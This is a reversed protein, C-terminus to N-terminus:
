VIEETSEFPLLCEEYFTLHISLFILLITVLCLVICNMPWLPSEHAQLTLFPHILQGIPHTLLGQRFILGTAWLAAVIIAGGMGSRFRLAAWLGISSFALFSVQGGLFIQTLPVVLTGNVIRWMALLLASWSLTAVLLLIILREVVLRWIPRPTVMLLERCPDDLLLGTAMWGVLLPLLIEGFVLLMFNVDDPSNHNPYTLVGWFIAVAPSLLLNRWYIRCHPRWLFKGDGLRFGNQRIATIRRKSM